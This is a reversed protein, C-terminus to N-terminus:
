RKRIAQSHQLDEKAQKSTAKVVHEINDLVVSDNIAGLQLHVWFHSKSGKNSALIGSLKPLRGSAWRHLPSQKTRRTSFIALRFAAPPWVHKCSRALRWASKLHSSIEDPLPPYPETFWLILLGSKTPIVPSTICFMALRPCSSIEKCM